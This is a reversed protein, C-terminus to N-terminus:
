NLVEVLVPFHATMYKYVQIETKCREVVKINSKPITGVIYYKKTKRTM